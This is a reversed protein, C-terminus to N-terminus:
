RQKKTKGASDSLESERMALAIIVKARPDKDLHELVLQTAKPSHGASRIAMRELADAESGGNEEQECTILARTLESIRASFPKKTAM